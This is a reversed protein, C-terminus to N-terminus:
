RGDTRKKPGPNSISYSFNLHPYLIPFLDFSVNPTFLSERFDVRENLELARHDVFQYSGVGAGGGIELYWRNSIKFLFNASLAMGYYFRDRRNNYYIRQFENTRTEGFVTRYEATYRFHAHLGYTIATNKSRALFFEIGPRVRLGQADTESDFIYGAEISLNTKPKIALDTNLQIAPFLNLFASPTIGIRQSPFTMKQAETKVGILILVLILFFLKVIRM